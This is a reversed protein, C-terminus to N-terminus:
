ALGLGVELRELIEHALFGQNAFAPHERALDVEDEFADRGVELGELGEDGLEGGRRM